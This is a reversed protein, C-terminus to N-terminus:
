TQVQQRNYQDHIGTLHRRSNYAYSAVDADKRLFSANRSAVTVQQNILILRALHTSFAQYNTAFDCKPSTMRIPKPLYHTEPVNFTCHM